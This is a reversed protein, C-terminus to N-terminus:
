GSGVIVVPKPAAPQPVQKAAPAPHKVHAPKRHKIRQRRVPAAPASRPTVVVPKPKPAPAALTPLSPVQSLHPLV